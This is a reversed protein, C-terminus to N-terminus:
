SVMGVIAGVVWSPIAGAVVDLVEPTGNGRKWQYWEVGVLLVTAGGSIALGHFGLSAVLVLLLLALAVAFGVKFHELKDAPISELFSM